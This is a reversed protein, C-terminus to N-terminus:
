ERGDPAWGPDRGYFAALRDCAPADDGIPIEYGFPKGPGRYEDRMMGHGMALARECLQPDLTAPQGTAKALDWAHLLLDLLTVSALSTGTMGGWPMPYSRELAGPARLVADAATAADAFAAGPDDGVLDAPWDPMPGGTAAAAAITRNLGVLHNLLARVDWETCPTPNSMQRPQVGEVILQAAAGARSRLEVLNDPNKM